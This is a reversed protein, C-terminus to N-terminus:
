ETVLGLSELQARSDDHACHVIGHWGRSVAAAVNEPRDDLFVTAAPQLRFRQETLQYIRPDPKMVGVEYSRIVGHAYRELELRQSLYQWHLDGVNTLLYVDYRERLRSALQLMAIDPELMAVWAARLSAAELPQPVLAAIQRLLADGDLRGTEHALLDIRATVAELDQQRGGAAALLGLLREPQLQVLVRGIDFVVHRIM